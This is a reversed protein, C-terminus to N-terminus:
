SNSAARTGDEAWGQEGILPVFAVAGLDEQEYESESRRTVKLLTQHRGSEGVPIVLRGGTALQEKLAKPLYPGGAAVLIADFPAASAWGRTGDGTRLEINGYGLKEFRKRATEALSPHREIAYVKDAIQGLVAAAYGSGAGV